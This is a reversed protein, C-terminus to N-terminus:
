TDRALVGVAVRHRNAPIDLSRGKGIVRDLGRERLRRREREGRGEREGRRKGRRRRDHGFFAVCM